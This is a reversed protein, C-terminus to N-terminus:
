SQAGRLGPQRANRRVWKYCSVSNQWFYKEAAPRGKAMFYDYVLKFGVPVPLWQDSNPWDSGYLVRDMGFVDVIEDLRPRYFELDTPVSGQVRRLVESVKVFVQPRERFAKMSADYSARAAPETPPVMQPLHDIVIRLNPVRDSVRVVDALLEVSPNATDLVLDADALAKLDSVFEPQELERGGQRGLGYRIGRFLPNAHFRDLNRRFDPAGPVLRGVTGVMIEDKAAVDLVWQNDELWSSCEVEIAGVIGLPEAIPRYRSPLSPKYLVANNRGPWPVGQPRTPDYLHIHTDIVPFPPLGQPASGPEAALARNIVLPLAAAAAASAALFRRRSLRTDMSMISRPNQRRRRGVSVGRRGKSLRFAYDKVRGREQM